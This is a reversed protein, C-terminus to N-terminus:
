EMREGRERLFSFEVGFSDGLGVVAKIYIRHYSDGEFGFKVILWLFDFKGENEKM